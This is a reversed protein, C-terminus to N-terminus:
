NCCEGDVYNTVGGFITAHCSNSYTVGDCGCVPDYEEICIGNDIILTSDICISSQASPISVCSNIKKCSNFFVLFFSATYLFNKM